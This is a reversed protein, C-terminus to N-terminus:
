PFYLYMSASAAIFLATTIANKYPELRPNFNMCGGCLKTDFGDTSLDCFVRARHAFPPIWQNGYWTGNVFTMKISDLLSPAYQASHSNIFEITELWGMVVWLIDDYAQNRISFAVHVFYFGIM